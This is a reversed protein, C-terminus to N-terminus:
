AAATALALDSTVVHSHFFKAHTLIEGLSSIGVDRLLRSIHTGAPANQSVTIQPLNSRM